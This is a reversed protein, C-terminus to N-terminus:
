GALRDERIMAAGKEGIMLTAANTNGSVMTPMVSADVVRLGSVGRVRLRQDLVGLADAGMRCTGVPHYSTDGAERAYDIFDSDSTVDKGPSLEHDRYEDMAPNEIIRRAIRMGAVLCRRDSEEALFRGQIAPPRFPDASQVHISGRSEPRLPYIGLTMGPKSDLRRTSASGYSAPAFHFQLDPRPAKPSSRVFGFGLAIPLSLV